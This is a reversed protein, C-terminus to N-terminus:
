CPLNRKLRCKCRRISRRLDGGPRLAQVGWCTVATVPGPQVTPCISPYASMCQRCLPKAGLSPSPAMGFEKSQIM